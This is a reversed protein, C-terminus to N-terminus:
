VLLCLVIQYITKGTIQYPKIVAIVHDPIFDAAGGFVNYAYSRTKQVALVNGGKLSREHRTAGALDAPEDHSHAAFFARYIAETMEAIVLCRKKRGVAMIEGVSPAYGLIFGIIFQSFAIVGNLGKAPESLLM